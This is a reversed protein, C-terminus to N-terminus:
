SLLERRAQAPTVDFQQKFCATLHSQNAFGCRYAIEAVPLQTTLLLEKAREGRRRQVYAWVPQGTTAKFSRSFHGASLCAVAAIEAVTMAEGLHAEIYDITRGIRPDNMSLGLMKPLEKGHPIYAGALAARLALSVGEVYLTDLPKSRHATIVADRLTCALATVKRDSLMMLSRDIAELGSAERLADDLLGDRFEVFLCEGHHRLDSESAATGSPHVNFTLPSGELTHSRDSNLAYWSRYPAYNFVMLDASTTANLTWGRAGPYTLDLRTHDVALAGLLVPRVSMRDRLDTGDFVEVM